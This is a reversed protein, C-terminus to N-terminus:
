ADTMDFMRAEIEYKKLRTHAALRHGGFVLSFPKNKGKRVGIPQLLGDAKISDTIEGLKKM